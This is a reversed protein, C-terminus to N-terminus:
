WRKSLWVNSWGATHFTCHVGNGVEKDWGCGQGQSSTCCCSNWKLGAIFILVGTQINQMANSVRCKVHLLITVYHLLVHCVQAALDVRMKSFSTLFVHEYKLKPVLTLSQVNRKSEMYLEVIHSWSISHRNQPFVAIIYYHWQIIYQHIYM